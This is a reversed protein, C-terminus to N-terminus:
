YIAMPSSRRTTKAAAKKEQLYQQMAAQRNHMYQNWFGPRLEDMTKAILWLELSILNAATQDQQQLANLRQVLDQGFACIEGSQSLTSNM